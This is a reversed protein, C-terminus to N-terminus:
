AAAQRTTVGAYFDAIADFAEKPEFRYTTAPDTYDDRITKTIAMSAIDLDHKPDGSHPHTPHIFEAMAVSHVGLEEYMALMKRHYDAQATENRVYGDLVTPPDVTRDVVDFALLGREAAGDYAMSGYESIVIPKDWRRYAGIERAHGERAPHYTYYYTLGVFDVISWDVDEFWGASYTLGGGFISRATGAARGLFENLKRTSEDRDFDSDKAQLFNHEHDANAFLTGMRQHYQEGPIMGPTMVYHVCGLSLHIDAGQKRFSEAIHAAEALHEITEEHSKDVIRPQLWVHLGRDVAAQVTDDLRDLDTGYVTVSNANLGTRIADIERQMQETSWSMRSLPGQGTAFNSGVDYSVGRYVFGDGPKSAHSVTDEETTKPATV